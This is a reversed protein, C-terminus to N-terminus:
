LAIRIVPPFRDMRCVERFSFSIGLPLHTETGLMHRPAPLQFLASDALLPKIKFRGRRMCAPSDFNWGIHELGRCVSSTLKRFRSSFSRTKCLSPTFVIRNM